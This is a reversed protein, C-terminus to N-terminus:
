TKFNKYDITCKIAAIGAAKSNQTSTSSAAPIALASTAVATIIAVKVTRSTRPHVSGGNALKGEVEGNSVDITNIM